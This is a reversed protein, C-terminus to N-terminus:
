EDEEATPELYYVSTAGPPMPEVPILKRAIATANLMGSAMVPSPEKVPEVLFARGLSQYNLRHSIARAMAIGLRKGPPLHAISASFADAEAQREADRKDKAAWAEEEWWERPPPVIGWAAKLAEICDWSCIDDPDIDRHTTRVLEWADPGSVVAAVKGDKIIVYDHHEISHAEYVNDLLYGSGPETGKYQGVDDGVAYTQCTDYGCYIQLDQKGAPHKISTFTGM